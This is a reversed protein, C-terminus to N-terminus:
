TTADRIDAAQHLFTSAGTISSSLLDWQDPTAYHGITAPDYRDWWGHERRLLDVLLRVQRRDEAHPDVPSSATPNAKQLATLQTTATKAERLAEGPTPQARITALAESAATHITEPLTPDSAAHDLLTTHHHLTVRQWRPHVKGDTTLEVLATAADQRVLPDEDPNAAFRQLDRIQELRQFSDKGTVAHAAKSRSRIPEPPPPSSEEGGDVDDRTPTPPRTGFRTAECRLQAQTTYLEHYEAYLDAQEVPTLTKRLTEADFMAALRLTDSVNAPIWAPISAWGLQRAAALRRTGCILDGSTTVVVPTLLGLRSISEMLPALDGVDHRPTGTQNIQDIPYEVDLHGDSM